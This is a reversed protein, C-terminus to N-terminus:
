HGGNFRGDPDDGFWAKFGAPTLGSLLTERDDRSVSPMAVQIPAGEEWAAWEPAPVRIRYAQGTAVCRGSVVVTDGVHLILGHRVNIM